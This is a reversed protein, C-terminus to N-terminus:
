TIVRRQYLFWEAVTIACACAAIYFWLPRAFWNAAMPIAERKDILHEKPRLDSEREDALNVAFETAITEHEPSQRYVLTWIGCEDFPGLSLEPTATPEDSPVTTRGTGRDPPAPRDQQVNIDLRPKAAIPFEHGTPSRLILASELASDDPRLAHKAIEGTSLSSRLEGADGSFWGLANTVMIPFATRFALDSKDLDVSLVLCKGADRKVVAYVADGSLTGALVQPQAKFTIRRAEPLVVNDLRVHTMLPSDAQQQTVIPNEIAAGLEWESSSGTPDVVFVNGSPVQQPVQRHLVVITDAPWSEPMTKQVECLVLPNAEFVKQLFLNGDTVLLVRQQKRAPLIAWATDDVALANPSSVPAIATSRKQEDLSSDGDDPVAVQTLRAVLQGGELSTKQLSRRWKEEPKLRLPLVDVPVGDLEVELRCEVDKDSANHVAALVEYGLPDVLSRRVQFQTIGLNAAQTGFLHHTVVPAKHQENSPKADAAGGTSAISPAADTAPQSPSEVCGDTYVLVQGRPHDGLLQKGLEIASSLDTPNDSVTIGRLARKLTPVHGSMGIIVEPRPGAAVIAMEDRFRLGNVLTLAADIAADFRTPAVDATQMSASRDIVAVIRRSQLLQWPLYPDAIALVLLALVCLQVLLSLLHRLYQWISRPPKEDYVQKWFLNTSVPQRRLRVKLIYFVIIPVACAALWFASPLAFSM